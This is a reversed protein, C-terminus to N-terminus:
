IEHQRQAMGACPCPKTWAAATLAVPSRRTDCLAVDAVETAHHLAAAVPAGGCGAQHGKLMCCLEGDTSQTM